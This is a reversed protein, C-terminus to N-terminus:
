RYLYPTWDNHRYNNATVYVEDPNHPSIRVQSIWSGAPLGKLGGSVETWTSGGDTTKHVLGDDSSAWVEDARDPHPTVCLLTTHNEANTADTTLGGSETQKQKEPYNTTLDPSLLTWSQGRDASYHM